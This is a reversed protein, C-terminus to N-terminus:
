YAFVIELRLIDELFSLVGISIVVTTNVNAQYRKNEISKKKNFGKKM